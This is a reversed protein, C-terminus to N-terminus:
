STARVSHSFILMFNVFINVYTGLGCDGCHIFNKNTEIVNQWDRVLIELIKLGDCMPLHKTMRMFIKHLEKCLQLLKTFTKKAPFNIKEKNTTM